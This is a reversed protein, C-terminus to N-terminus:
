NVWGKESSRMRPSVRLQVQAQGGQDGRLEERPRRDRGGRSQGIKLRSQEQLGEFITDVLTNGAMQPIALFMLACMFNECQAQPPAHDRFVMAESFIRVTKYLWSEAQIEGITNAVRRAGGIVLFYGWAVDLSFLHSRRAPISVTVGRGEEKTRGSAPHDAELFIRARGCSRSRSARANITRRSRKTTARSWSRWRGFISSTDRWCLQGTTWEVRKSRRECSDARAGALGEEGRM